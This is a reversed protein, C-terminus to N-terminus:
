ILAEQYRVCPTWSGLPRECGKCSALGQRQKCYSNAVYEFVKANRIAFAIEEAISLLLMRDEATFDKGESKNVVELVGVKEEGATLPIVIINRTPFGFDADIQGYFRPDHAVDNVVESQQSKLASGALGKDAPFTATDLAGKGPGEVHYFRLNRKEDDLLLVSAEEAAVLDRCCFLAIELQEHLGQSQALASSVTLYANLHALERATKAREALQNLGVALLRALSEWVEQPPTTRGGASMLGLLNTRGNEALPYVTLNDMGWTATAPLTASASIQGVYEACWQECESDPQDWNGHSFFRPSDEPPAAFYLFASSARTLAAVAPLAKTAFETMSEAKLTIELLGLLQSVYADATEM